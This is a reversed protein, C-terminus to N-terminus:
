LEHHGKIDFRYGYHYQTGRSKYSRLPTVTSNTPISIRNQNRNRYDGITHKMGGPFIVIDSEEVEIDYFNTFGKQPELRYLINLETVQDIFQKIPNFLRLNGGFGKKHKLYYTSCALSMFHNHISMPEPDIIGDWPPSDVMWSQTVTVNDSWKVDMVHRYFCDYASLTAQKLDGMCDSEIDIINKTRLTQSYSKGLTDPDIYELSESHIEDKYQDHNMYTFVPVAFGFVDHIEKLKIRSETLRLGTESSRFFPEIEEPTLVYFNHKTRNWFSIKFIKHEDSLLKYKNPGVEVVIGPKQSDIANAHDRAEPTDVVDKYDIDAFKLEVPTKKAITPVLERLVIYKGSDERPAYKGFVFDLEYPYDCIEDNM